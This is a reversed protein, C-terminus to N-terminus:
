KKRDVMIKKCNKSGSWHHLIFVESWQLLRIDTISNNLTLHVMFNTAAIRTLHRATKQYVHMVAM